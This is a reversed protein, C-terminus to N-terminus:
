AVSGHLRRRRRAVSCGPRLGGGRAHGSLRRGPQFRHHRQRSRHAAHRQRHWGSLDTLRRWRQSATTTDNGAGGTFLASGSSDQLTDNGAGGELIDNGAGGDLTDNGALGVLRDDGANGRLRNALDNGTLTAATAVALFLHEVNAALTHETAYGYVSDNGQDADEVVRDGAGLYYIDDGLGGTLVNAASNAHGYLTNARANGTADIAASGTLYLRELHEGLTWTVSSYVTDFGADADERIADAANDVTYSDDGTGGILTDAGLGGDLTDNGALGVLRDDGANGRLRNALDNGTLTAATAVALFLHEVNAALTHETAYGYVSDNGQDADEVARDGAGLYYIDDGLGGTLVNAASNAHGYLTNARANGTADIAASGTLYLRELHEGLTWTVSSYVTDFGADADERIADAANDVTYSDDGTGGILTDAGLGGDLTDNGALGVLRDDGANGRLRNALDNGTLTAATAAALFLHEVNAALTHETAYGYVSDNGQDVDEVARDGAGLYYIDDGLGGTLVNAASNADGRLTNALDNGYGNIAATGTLTLNEVNAGLSWRIGSIITDKGADAAEIVTDGDGVYYTDNGTGGELTDAGAGGDLVNNGSNGTLRNRLANGTGNISAGAALVLNEVNDALTHSVLSWVDDSGQNALEVVTDGREDVVYTDDGEGGRMTDAGAAGNLLDNGSTGVLVDKNATGLLSAPSAAAIQLTFPTAVSAGARDTATIRLKLSGSAGVPAIGSLDGTRADIALWSPLPDGNTLTAHLTLVEGPDEDGFTDSPITWRIPMGERFTVTEIPANVVPAQNVDAVIVKLYQSASAGSRDAVAVFLEHSGVDANTPTGSLTRTLPDFRLWAPEDPLNMSWTLSDGPNPDRFATEPLVVSFAEGERASVPLLPVDVQPALNGQTAAVAEIARRDWSSGNAFNVQDVTIRRGDAELKLWDASDKVRFYLGDPQYQLTIDSPLLDFFDIREVKGIVRDQGYGRGYRVTSANYLLDNGAGGDLLDAGDRASLSSGGYLTDDGADGYLQDDSSSRSGSDGYLVDDGDGGRLSDNGGGGTVTDNGAQADIRVNITATTVPGFAPIASFSAALKDAGATGVLAGTLDVRTGDTFQLSEIPIVPQGNAYRSGADKVFVLSDSSGALTLQWSEDSLVAITLDQMRIGEDFRVVDRDVPAGLRQDDIIRDTGSGRRFLYTDAGFVGSLTDDGTGGDLTDDGEGGWLDDRGSGGDLNDNGGYARLTDNGASGKLVNAAANGNIVNDLENGAAGLPNSGLLTLVEVGSGQSALDFSVWSYATDRGEGAQEIILDNADDIDYVDNGAGGVLTDAGALGELWDNGNGGELLDGRDGGSLTDSGDFGFLRNGVGDFGTLSDAASTGLTSLRAKIDDATWTLGDAFTIQEIGASTAANYQQKITVQDSGGLRVILDSGVRALESVAAAGLDTLRLTDVTGNTDNTENIVDAGDGSAFLYIDAGFGGALRDNGRGGALTDAVEAGNLSDDGDVGYLRNDIGAQGNIVDKGATGTVLVREQLDGVNWRVSDAFRFEEIRHSAGAFYEQITLRDSGGCALVLDNGNHPRTVTVVSSAVDLFEVVDAHDATVDDDVILDSGDGVAFRYHDSGAGGRLTDNGRGGTIVDDGALGDVLDDGGLADITDSALTATYIDAGESLETSVHTAIEAGNWESGDAFRVRDIPAGAFHRLVLVHEGSTRVRIVLDDHSRAFILDDALLGNGIVLRDTDLSSDSNDITDNGSGLGWFYTDSGGGGRLSDNGAGGDLRDNVSTGTLTDNGATGTLDFGRALLEGYSLATGDAFEFRDIAPPKNTGLADDPDFGEIHIADDPNSGVLLKLSGIALRIDDATIGAGFRLTNPLAAGDADTKASTDIIRDTGDGRSYLYTNRGGYGILTDDGRGGSFTTHGDTATLYDDLSGGLWFSRGGSAAGMPTDVLRGILESYSLTEGNAFRYHGISGALGDKILLQDSTGYTILLSGDSNAIRLDTPTAHSFVITNDGEADVVYEVFGDADRPSDGAAFVYRDDGAGGELYDTDTGGILTDAGDGGRLGDSGSGGDLLDDGGGGRLGDNGSGGILTDAGDGGRLADNGSGGDLLDDDAGSDLYDTGTGGLLTDLGDDGFLTDNGEGGDLVDDKGGGSLDDNGAGGFLTDEGALANPLVGLYDGGGADGYLIDDGDEGDLWDNGGEGTLEDNGAGGFLVDHGHPGVWESHIVFGGDIVEWLDPAYGHLEGTLRDNGEGGLLIDDGGEGALTDDGEDGALVDAVEGGSVFDNGSGGYLFHKGPINSDPFLHRSSVDRSPAAPGVRRFFANNGPEVRWDLKFTLKEVDTTLYSYKYPIFPVAWLNAYLVDDGSGGYIVNGGPGGLLVDNGHSGVILDDGGGGQLWSGPQGSGSEHLSVDLAAPDTIRTEAWVSDNGYSADIIERGDGGEFVEDDSSGTMEEPAPTGGISVPALKQLRIGFGSSAFAEASSYNDFTLSTTANFTLVGPSSFTMRWGNDGVFTYSTGTEGKIFVGSVLEGNHKIFNRGSDVVHDHGDGDNIVYTDEGDGGVLTDDGPGGVLTDNNDGGELRDNGQGGLLNDRGAGGRLEDADANGELTDDGAGGDLQDSGAGGYFADDGTEGLVSDNGDSGFVVRAGATAGTLADVEQLSLGSAEDKFNRLSTDFTTARLAQGEGTNALRAEGLRALFAARDALYRDTYTGEHNARQEPTLDQDAKWATYEASWKAKLTTEVASEQGPVAKLAFSSGTHLTLFAAFDTRAATALDRGPLTLTLKGKAENFAPSDALAKLKDYFTERLSEDAWTGGTLLGNV